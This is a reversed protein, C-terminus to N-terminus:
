LTRGTMKSFISCSCEGFNSDLSLSSQANLIVLWSNKFPQHKIKARAKTIELTIFQLM